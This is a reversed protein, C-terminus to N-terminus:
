GGGRLARLGAVLDEDDIASRRHLDILHAVDVAPGAAEGVHQEARHRELTEVARRRREEWGAGHPRLAVWAPLLALAGTVGAAIGYGVRGDTVPEAVYGAVYVGAAAAGLCLAVAGAAARRVVPALLAIGLPALALLGVFFGVLGFVFWDPCAAGADGGCASPARSLHFAGQAILAAAAVVLVAGLLPRVIRPPRGATETSM